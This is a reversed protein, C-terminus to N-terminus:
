KAMEESENNSLHMSYQWSVLVTLLPNPTSYVTNQECFKLKAIVQSTERCFIDM